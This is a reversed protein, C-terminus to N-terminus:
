GATHRVDLSPSRARIAITTCPRHNGWLNHTTSSSIAVAARREPPLRGLERHTENSEYRVAADIVAGWRCVANQSSATLGDVTHSLGINSICLVTALSMIIM